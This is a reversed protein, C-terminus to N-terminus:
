HTLALMTCGPGSAEPSQRGGGDNDSREYLLLNM